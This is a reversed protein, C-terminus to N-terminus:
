SITKLKKYSTRFYNRLTKLKHTHYKTVKNSLWKPISGKPDAQAIYTVESTIGREEILFGSYVIDARVAKNNSGEHKVLDVSKAILIRLGNELSYPKTVLIFDRDEIFKPQKYRMYIIRLDGQYSKLELGELLTKDWKKTNKADKLFELIHSSECSIKTRVKVTSDKNGMNIKETRIGDRDSVLKWGKANNFVRLVEGLCIEAAHLADFYMTDSLPSVLRDITKEETVPNKDTNMMFGSENKPPTYPTSPPALITEETDFNARMHGEFWTSITPVRRNMQPKSPNMISFISYPESVADREQPIDVEPSLDSRNSDCPTSVDLPLSHSIPLHSNKLDEEMITYSDKSVM